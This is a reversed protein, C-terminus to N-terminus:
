RMPEKRPARRRTGRPQTTSGSTVGRADDRHAAAQDPGPRSVPRSVSQAFRALPRIAEFSIPSPRVRKRRGTAIKPATQDGIRKVAPLLVTFTTGRGPRSEVKIEGHHTEIIWRAIALGLGSGHEDRERAVDARYFREYIHPLDDENIGIGSDSITFTAFPGIQSVAIRIHGDRPTYKIANDLLIMGLQRIQGPDANVAVPAIETVSLNLHKHLARLQALGSRYLDMAFQDMEVRERRGSLKEDILTARAGRSASAADVRALLLLDSVLSSM